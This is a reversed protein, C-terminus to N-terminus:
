RGKRPASASVARWHLTGTADIDTIQLEESWPLHGMIAVPASNFQELVGAAFLPGYEQEYYPLVFKEVAQVSCFFADFVEGKITFPPEPEAGGQLTVDLQKMTAQGEPRPFGGNDNQYPGFIGFEGEPDTERLGGVQAQAKEYTEVPKQVSFPNPFADTPSYRAVVYFTPSPAYSSNAAQALVRALTPSVPNLFSGAPTGDSM